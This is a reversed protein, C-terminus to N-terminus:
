SSTGSAEVSRFGHGCDRCRHWRKPRATKTVPCNSGGCKPCVVPRYLVAQDELPQSTRHTWRNGCFNCRSREIAIRVVRDAQGTKVYRGLHNQTDLVELDNCGCEPCRPVDDSDDM